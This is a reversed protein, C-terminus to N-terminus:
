RCFPRRVCARGLFGWVQENISTVYQMEDQVCDRLEQWRSAVGSDELVEALFGDGIYSRAAAMVVFTKPLASLRSHGGIYYDSSKPDARICGVLSDIGLLLAATLARCTGGVTLWRSDSYKEFRMVQLLGVILRGMLDNAGKM